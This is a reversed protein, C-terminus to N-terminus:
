NEIEVIKLDLADQYVIYYGESLPDEQDLPLWQYNKGLEEPVSANYDCRVAYCIYKIQENDYIAGISYQEGNEGIKVFKSHEILRNLDEDAPYNEFIYKFQPVISDLINTRQAMDKKEDANENDNQLNNGAEIQEDFASDNKLNTVFKGASDDNYLANKHATESGNNINENQYNAGSYFCKKYECNACRMLEFDDSDVSKKEGDKANEVSDLDSFVSSDDFYYGAYTGGGLLVKNGMSTDILATYFDSNIDFEGSFTCEYCEGKDILNASYVKENHYIGLKCFKNLKEMQYLRLKCKLSYGNEQYLTLIGRGSSQLNSSHDVNSIIITKSRM